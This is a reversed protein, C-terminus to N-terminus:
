HSHQRDSEHSKDQAKFWGRDDLRRREWATWEEESMVPTPIANWAALWAEIEEPTEPRDDDAMGGAVPSVEVETGNPWDLPERPVILGDRVTAAIRTM